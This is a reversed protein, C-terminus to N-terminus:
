LSPWVLMNSGTPWMLMGEPSYNVMFLLSSSDILVVNVSDVDSRIERPVVTPSQCVISDAAVHM